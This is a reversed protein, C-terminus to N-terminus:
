EGSAKEYMRRLGCRNIRYVVFPESVKYQAAIAGCSAGRKVRWFLHAYPLLMAGGVAYAEEEFEEDYTRKGSTPDITSPRHGMVIHTLEEALTACQRVENHLPNLIVCWRDGIAIAGGSWMTSNTILTSHSAEDLSAVGDSFRVCINAGLAADWPDLAASAAVALCRKAAIACLEIRAAEGGVFPLFHDGEEVEVYAEDFDDIQTM